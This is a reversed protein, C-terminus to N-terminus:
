IPTKSKKCSKSHQHRWLSNPCEKYVFIGCVSCTDGSIDSPKWSDSNTLKVLVRDNYSGQIYYRKWNIESDKWWQGTESKKNWELQKMRWYHNTPRSYM